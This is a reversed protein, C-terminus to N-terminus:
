GNAPVAMESRRKQSLGALHGENQLVQDLHRHREPSATAVMVEGFMSDLWFRDHISIYDKLEVIEAETQARSCLNLTFMRRRSNGKWSSHLINHNFLVVDGPVSDLVVAPVDAGEVGLEEVSNLVRERVAVTGPDLRHSGPVVRLAGSDADVPDLYIAMKIFRGGEHSGDTHWGTDGAYYNGDGGIYNFYPGLLLEAIRLVAPDDLLACLREDQDIFPVVTTRRSGDHTGARNQMVHEFAAVISNLRHGVLGPVKMYGFTEFFKLQQQPSSM